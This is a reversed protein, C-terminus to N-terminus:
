AEYARHLRRGLRALIEYSVTGAWASFEELTIADRGDAGIITAVDGRAVVSGPGVDVMVFDMTVRGVLPRRVGGLLVAARSQVVRPIGDAYGIALTAVRTAEPATWDGGYSVTGGPPLERVSVVRARVAAVAKPMPLDPGPRGGYMFLGPRVLDFREATRWVGASNAVHVLSPRSGLQALAARFRETQIAVSDPDDDAASLHTFAGELHPSIFRALAPWVDWRIGCRGMGTDIELHFPRDWLAAADPDDLVATLDHEHYVELQDISAPTFVVVPRGIAAARLETAEGLTAVGYGWPALSELARAVPVAGLGYADAKVMPLLSAGGAVEQIARANAVLNALNVEV